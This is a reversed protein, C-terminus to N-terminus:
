IFILSYSVALIPGEEQSIKFIAVIPICIVSSFTVFWGVLNAWSPYDYEGYSNGSYDKTTFFLILQFILESLFINPFLNYAIKLYWSLQQHLWKGPGNGTSEQIHTSALCSNLIRLFNTLETFGLWLLFRLAALFWRLTPLPMTTSLSYSTCAAKLSWQCAPLICAVVSLWHVGDPIFSHRSM